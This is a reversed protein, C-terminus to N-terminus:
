SHTHSHNSKIGIAGGYMCEDDYDFADLVPGIELRDLQLYLLDKMRRLVRHWDDTSVALGEVTFKRVHKLPLLPVINETFTTLIEHFQLKLNSSPTSSSGADIILDNEMPGSSVTLHDVRRPCELGQCEYYATLIKKVTAFITPVHATHVPQFYIVVNRLPSSMNILDTFGAIVPDADYLRLDTLQPLVVPASSGSKEVPPLAGELDLGQLNPHQHLIKSLQSRTFRHQYERPLKLRLSTLNSTTFLSSSSDPLFNEIDLKSLNPLPSSFFRDLHRVSRHHYPGILQVRVSSTISISNSILADLLRELQEGGGSFDFQHIGRPTGAGALIDLTSDTLHSRWTLFLPADKSRSKFLHWAKVAGAVWWVWLQPFGIAVENWRRCAQLFSFTGTAFSANDDQLGAEVVYLFVDLLLEAPLQFIPVHSNQTYRM